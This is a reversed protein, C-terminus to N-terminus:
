LSKKIKSIQDTKIKAEQELFFRNVSPILKLWNKILKVIKDASVRAKSLLSNIKLATKEGESKFRMREAQSMDLFNKDLGSSMIDEIAKIQKQEYSDPETVELPVVGTNIPAAKTKLLIKKTEIKELAKEKEAQKEVVQETEASEPVLVPIQEINSKNAM